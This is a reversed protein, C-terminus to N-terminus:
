NVAGHYFLVGLGSTFVIQGALAHLLLAAPFSGKVAYAWAFALGGSATMALVLPHGYMLHALAFVFTNVALAVPMSPFLGGYRRFFLPRFLIEQPLASFVPYLALIALWLDTNHRPMALLNGPFLVWTATGAIVATLVSFGLVFRWPIPGSVLERWSFGPTRHLLIVGVATLAFLLTFMADPPLVYALALPIGVFLALFEVWLRAHLVHRRRPDAPRITDTM